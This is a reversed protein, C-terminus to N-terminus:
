SEKRLPDQAHGRRLCFAPGLRVRKNFDNTIFLFDFLIFIKLNFILSRKRGQGLYGRTLEHNTKSAEGLTNM